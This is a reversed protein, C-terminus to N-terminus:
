RMSATIPKSGLNRLTRIIPSRVSPEDEVVLVVEGGSVAHSVLPPESSFELEVPAIAQPFFMRVRTGKGLGSEIDTSGNMQRVSGYVSALGLGRGSGPGKTSHFPEFLRALTVEDM